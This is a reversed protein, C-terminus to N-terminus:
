LLIGYGLAEIKITRVSRSGISALSLLLNERRIINNTSQFAFSVYDDETGLLFHLATLSRQSCSHIPQITVAVLYDRFSGSFRVIRAV